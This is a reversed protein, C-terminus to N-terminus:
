FFDAVPQLIGFPGTVMPGVRGQMRAATKRELWEFIFALWVFFTLGPFVLLEVLQPANM